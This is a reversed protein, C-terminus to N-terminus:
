VGKDRMHEKDSDARIQGAVCAIGPLELGELFELSAGGGTSIHTMQRQLAWSNWRRRLQRRRRHHHHRESEAIAAAVAKTGSPLTRLNLCAWPATGSWRARARRDRGPFAQRHRPGSTWAWGTRPFRATSGCHRTRPTRRLSTPRGRHGDPAPFKVGKEKAKEMM